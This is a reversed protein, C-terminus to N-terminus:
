QKGTRSRNVSPAANGKGPKVKTGSVKGDTVEIEVKMSQDKVNETLARTLQSIATIQNASSEFTSEGGSAISMASSWVNGLTLQSGQQASVAAGKLKGQMARAKSVGEPTSLDLGAIERGLGRGSLINEANIARRIVNNGAEEIMGSIATGIAAGVGLAQVGSAFGGAIQQGSMRMKQPKHFEVGVEQVRPGQLGPVAQGFAMRPKYARQEQSLLNFGSQKEAQQSSAAVAALAPALSGVGGVGGVMGGGLAGTLSGMGGKIMLAGKIMLLSKAVSLVADAHEAMFGFAKGLARAGSVIPTVDFKNIKGLISDFNAGSGFLGGVVDLGREALATKVRELKDGIGQDLETDMKAALGTARSTEDAFKKIEGTTDNLIPGLVKLARADFIGALIKARDKSGKGELKKNLDGIIDVFNRMKQKGNSMETTAVGLKELTQMAPKSGGGLRVVAQSLAMASRTAPIGRVDLAGVLSLYTELSQGSAAFAAGGTEIASYLDEVSTGARNHVSAYTDAVRNADKTTLNFARLSKAAIEASAGFETQTAESLNLIPNLAAVSQKVNFGAAALSSYAQAAQESTAEGTRGLARAGKELEAFAKSGRAAGEPFRLAAKGLAKDYRVYNGVASHMASGIRALGSTVVNSAAAGLFSGKFVAGVARMQSKADTAFRRTAADMGRLRQIYQNDRAKFDTTVTYTTNGM